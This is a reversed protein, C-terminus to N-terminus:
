QGKNVKVNVNQSKVDTKAAKVATDLTETISFTAFNGKFM